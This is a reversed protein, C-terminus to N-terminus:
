AGEAQILSLAFSFSLTQVSLRNELKTTWIAQLLLPFSVLLVLFFNLWFVPRFSYLTDYLFFATLLTMLFGVARASRLLQITRIAAVSFINASLLLVYLGFGYLIVVPLRVRWDGPVLFYFLGVGGTFLAPLLPVVFWELDNLAEKLSWASLSFALFVLSAIAQYRWSLNTVQIFLLILALVVATLIFKQRKRFYIPKM